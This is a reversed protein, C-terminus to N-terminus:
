SPLWTGDVSESGPIVEAEVHCRPSMDVNSWVVSLDVRVTTEDVKDVVNEGVNTTAVTKDKTKSNLPM